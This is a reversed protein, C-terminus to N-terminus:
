LESTYERLVEFYIKNKEGVNWIFWSSNFWCGKKNKNMSDKYNIRRDLVIVSIGYKRFLGNREVGELTTIPLLLAFPKRYTYCKELFKNKLSYPPNTIIMDFNFSAKDRLFDFGYVVDTSIVNYGNHSLVATIRSGGFDCCEWVTLPPKPLYNLLPYVAYDPTYFNDDNNKRAYNILAKKIM